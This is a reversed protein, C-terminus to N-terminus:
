NILLARFYMEESINTLNPINFYGINGREDKAFIDIEGIIQWEKLNDSQQIQWRSAGKEKSYLMLGFEDISQPDTNNPRILYLSSRLEFEGKSQQDGLEEYGNFGLYQAQQATFAYDYLIIKKIEYNKSKSKNDYGIRFDNLNLKHRNQQDQNSIIQTHLLEDDIYYKRINNQIDVVYILRYWINPKIAGITSYNSQGGVEGGPTIRFESVDPNIEQATNLIPNTYGFKSKIDVVLTYNSLESVNDTINFKIYNDNQIRISNGDDFYVDIWKGNNLSINATKIEDYFSNEEGDFTWNNRSTKFISSVSEFSWYKIPESLDLNGYENSKGRWYNRIKFPLINAVENIKVNFDGYIIEGGSEFGISIKTTGFNDISSTLMLISSDTISGSVLFEKDIDNLFYKKQELDPDYFYKDLEIKIFDGGQNIEIDNFPKILKPKDPIDSIQLRVLAESSFSKGDTAKIKFVNHVGSLNNPPSWIIGSATDIKTEGLIIDDFTLTKASGKFLDTLIFTLNDNDADVVGSITLLDNFSIVLDTDEISNFAFASKLIPIDNVPLVTIIVAFVDSKVGNELIYYTFLDQGFYDAIPTYTFEANNFNLSGSNPYDVIFVEAKNDKNFKLTISNDEYIEINTNGKIAGNSNSSNNIIYSFGMYGSRITFGEDQFAISGIHDNTFSELQETKNYSIHRSLGIQSFKIDLQAFCKFEISFLLILACIYNIKSLYYM